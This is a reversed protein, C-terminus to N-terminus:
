MVKGRCLYKLFPLQDKLEDFKTIKIYKGHPPNTVKELEEVDVDNGIGLALIKVEPKLSRIKQAETYLQNKYGGRQKGDTLLIVFRKSDDRIRNDEPPAKSEDPKLLREYAVKLGQDIFTKTGFTEGRLDIEKIKKNFAELSNVFPFQLDAWVINKIQKDPSTQSFIVLAARMGDPRMNYLNAVDKVFKLMIGKFANPTSEISSSKDLM